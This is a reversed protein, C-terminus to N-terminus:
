DISGRVLLNALAKRIPMGTLDQVWLFQANANVKLFVYAWDPCRIMDIAAYALGDHRLIRLCAAEV